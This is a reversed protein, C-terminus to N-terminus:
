LNYIYFSTTEYDDHGKFVPMALGKGPILFYSEPVVFNRSKFIHYKLPKLDEDLVLAKMKQDDPTPLKGKSSQVVPATYFLIFHKTLPNYYIASYAFTHLSYNTQYSGYEPTWLKSMDFKAPLQYDKNGILTKTLTNKMRDYIYLTDFCPYLLCITNGQICYKSLPFCYDPLSEPKTIYNRLFSISDDALRFEAIEPEKFYQRYSQIYGHSLSTILTDHRKVVPASHPSFISFSDKLYPFIHKIPSEWLKRGAAADYCSLVNSRSLFYNLHDDGTFHSSWAEVDIPRRAKAEYQRASKKCFFVLEKHILNYSCLMTDGLYEFGQVQQGVDIGSVTFSDIAVPETEDMLERKTCSILVFALMLLIFTKQIM